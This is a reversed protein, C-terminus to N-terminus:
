EFTIVMVTFAGSTEVVVPAVLHPRPVTFRVADVAVEPALRLQYLEAVPPEMSKVPLGNVVGAM